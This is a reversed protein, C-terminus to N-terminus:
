CNMMPDIHGFCHLYGDCFFPPRLQASYAAGFQASWGSISFWGGEVCAALAASLDHPNPHLRFSSSSCPPCGGGLPSTQPPVRSRHPARRFVASSSHRYRSLARANIRPEASQDVHVQQALRVRWRSAAHSRTHQVRPREWIQACGRHRPCLGARSLIRCVRRYRLLAVRLTILEGLSLRFCRLPPVLRPRLRQVSITRGWVRASRM